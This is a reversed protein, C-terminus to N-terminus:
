EELLDMAMKVSAKLSEPVEYYLNQLMAYVTDIREQEEQAKATVELLKSILNSM